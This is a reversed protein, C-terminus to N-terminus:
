NCCTYQLHEMMQSQKARCEWELTMQLICEFPINQKIISYKDIKLQM